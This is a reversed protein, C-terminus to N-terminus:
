KIKIESAMLVEKTDDNTIFAIIYLEDANFDKNVNFKMNTVFRRDKSITTATNDLTRGWTIGDATGRFVHRHMYNTDIGTQTAQKGIISDEMICTTLNIKGEVDKLFVTHISLELERTEDNYNSKIVVRAPADKGIENNVATAWEAHGIVNKRNVMGNPFGGIGLNQYWDNGDDTRFDSSVGYPLQLASKPHVGLVILHGEN